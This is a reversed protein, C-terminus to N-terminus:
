PRVPAEDNEDEEGEPEEADPQAGAVQAIIDGDTLAGCVSAGTDVTEHSALGTSPAYAGSPPPPPLASSKRTCPDKGDTPVLIATHSRIVTSASSGARCHDAVRLSSLFSCKDVKEKEFAAFLEPKEEVMNKLWVNANEARSSPRKEDATPQQMPLQPPPTSPVPDDAGRVFDALSKPSSVIMKSISHTYSSISEM